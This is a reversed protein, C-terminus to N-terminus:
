PRPIHRWTKNGAIDSISRRHVGMVDAIASHSMGESLMSLVRVVGADNLKAQATREGFVGRRKRHMDAINETQTGLFLHDPNTCPPNDCTHLVGLGNEIKGRHLEWSFRHARFITIDPGRKISFTPYGAKDTAGVWGWCGERKVVKRLYLDEPAVRDGITKCVRNCYVRKSGDARAPIVALTAGCAACPREIRRVMSASQCAHSCYIASAAYPNFAIGCQQCNRPDGRRRNPKSCM